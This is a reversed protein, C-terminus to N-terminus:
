SSQPEQNESVGRRLSWKLLSPAIVTTIVVMLVIASFLQSDIVGLGKGIAAFILGVEGRPLMGIGISLRNLGGGAVMGCVLKGIVAAVTLGSAFLLVEANLFSELKVQLGILVFFIPVLIAELPDMLSRITERGYKPDSKWGSFYQDNMILGAAFAGIITALGVLDAFWSLGMVFIFTVFIKAEHTQLGHMMAILTRLVHPGAYMVALIFLTAHALIELVAAGQISGSIVIGSVIALSVLGLVDDFIAAGLIVRAEQSHVVNLEDLVRATIGVSTAGLTAGIFLLSGVSNDPLVLWAVALGLVFPTVMGVIAVKLSPMGASRMEEVSSELGVLFMLFIVGYRSFMDVTHVISLLQMGDPGEVIEVIKKALVPDPFIQAAADQMSAGAFTLDIMDFLLRGERVVLIFDGGLLYVLNGLAIGIILEGLVSPQGFRRALYRGVVACVLIATVGLIVPAVPDAHAGDTAALATAPLMLLPLFLIHSKTPTKAM